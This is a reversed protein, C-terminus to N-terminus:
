SPTPGSEQCKTTVLTYYTPFQQKFDDPSKLTGDEVAKKINADLAKFDSFPMSSKVADYWCQCMRAAKAADLSTNAQECANVYNTQTDANYDKVSGPASCGALLQGLAALLGLGHRRRLRPRRPSSPESVLAL